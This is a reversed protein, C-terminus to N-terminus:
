PKRARIRIVVPNDDKYVALGDKEVIDDLQFGYGQLEKVLEDLVIFRRYHDTMYANREGEVAKGKGCLPDKVSRVEILLNGGKKLNHFSWKLARSCGDEPIAHLTFRSYITGFHTNQYPTTLNTFDGSVFKPNGNNSKTALETIEFDAIDIAWTNIGNHAFYLADRGNGCGLEFLVEDKNVHPLVFAAFSSCNTPVQGKKYFNNWYTQESM